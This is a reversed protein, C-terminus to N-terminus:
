LRSMRALDVPTITWCAPQWGAGCSAVMFIVRHTEKNEYRCKSQWRQSGFVKGSAQVRHQFFGLAPQAVVIITDGGGSPQLEGTGGRSRFLDVAEAQAEAGQDVPGM